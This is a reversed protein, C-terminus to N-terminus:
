DVACTAAATGSDHRIRESSRHPISCALALVTLLSSILVAAWAGRPRTVALEPGGIMPTSLTVAGLLLVAAVGCLARSWGSGRDGLAYGGGLGMLAIAIAGGGLGQSLLQALGGPILMPAVALALPALVLWRHRRTGHRRTHEAFGLLGGTVAGPLLVALFTGTWSFASSLGALEVMYARLGAAWALGCVAGSTIWGLASRQTARMGSDARLRCTCCCPGSGDISARM